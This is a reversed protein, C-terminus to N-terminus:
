TGRDTQRDTLAYESYLMTEWTSDFHTVDQATMTLLQANNDRHYLKYLLFSLLSNYLEVKNDGGVKEGGSESSLEMQCRTRSLFPIFYLFPFSFFSVPCSFFNQQLSRHM